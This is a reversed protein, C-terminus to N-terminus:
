FIKIMQFCPYEVNPSRPSKFDPCGFTQQFVEFSERWTYGVFLELVNGNGGGGSLFLSILKANLFFGWLCHLSEKLLLYIIIYITIVTMSLVTKNMCQIERQLLSIIASYYGTIEQIYLTVAQM